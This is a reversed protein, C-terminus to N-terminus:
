AAMAVRGNAGREINLERLFWGRLLFILVAGSVGIGAHLLWFASPGLPEYFRGIWGSVLGGIFIALYYAGVMMASVAAPAARSILSLAIPAAYLYGVAVV